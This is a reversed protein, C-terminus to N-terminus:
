QTSCPAGSFQFLLFLPFCLPARAIGRMVSGGKGSVGFQEELLFAQKPWSTLFYIHPFSLLLKRIPPSDDGFRQSGPEHFLEIPTAPPFSLVPLMGLTSNRHAGLCQLPEPQKYVTSSRHAFHLCPSVRGGPVPSVPAARPLSRSHAESFQGSGMAASTHSHFKGWGFLFPVLPSWPSTLLCRELNPGGSAKPDFLPGVNTALVTWSSVWPLISYDFTFYFSGM